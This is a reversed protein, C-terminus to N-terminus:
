GEQGLRREAVNHSLAKLYLGDQRVAHRAPDATRDLASRISSVYGPTAQRSSDRPLAIDGPRRAERSPTPRGSRGQSGKGLKYFSTSSEVSMTRHLRADRKCPHDSPARM